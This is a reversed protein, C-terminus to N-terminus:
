EPKTYYKQRKLLWCKIHIGNYFDIVVIFFITLQLIQIKVVLGDKPVRYQDTTIQQNYNGYFLGM